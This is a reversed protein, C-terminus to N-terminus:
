DNVLIIKGTHASSEMLEHAQAAQSLPFSRYIVPKFQRNELLPWVKEEIERALAAKFAIPRNRLTSGTITLRKQMIDKVQLHAENGKMANIFVLRGEPLLLRINKPIYDGGIMDLIVDAGEPQLVTEFDEEKYNISKDAGLATCANCKDTSGATIFVTAGAAKALQIATIGIGSSGGHVLLREGAQLRGRQFVNHWVTFITEPLSAAEAETWGAPVPLCQGADVTAFAAYGGGALLACVRDGKKWRTVATGCQEIIGAVELGPIDAVVGPPPAYRGKRQLIDPRNIGAAKVQILVENATPVPVPREATVLVSPDGPQSIVIAKM